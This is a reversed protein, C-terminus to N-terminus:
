SSNSIALECDALVYYDSKRFISGKLHEVKGINFFLCLFQM